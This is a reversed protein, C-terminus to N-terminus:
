HGASSGIRATRLDSGRDDLLYLLRDRLLRRRNPHRASGYLYTTLSARAPDYRAAGRMLGLFVEQVIDEATDNSGTMLRAFRFVVSHHKRYIAAFADRDGAATRRMLDDDSVEGEHRM